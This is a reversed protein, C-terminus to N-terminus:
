DSRLLVLISGDDPRSVISEQALGVDDNVHSCDIVLGRVSEVVMLSSEIM